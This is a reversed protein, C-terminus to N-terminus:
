RGNRGWIAVAAGFLLVSAISGALTAWAAGIVDWRPLLLFLGGLLVLTSCLRILLVKGTQGSATLMPEFAVGALEMSAAVGLLVLLPYAPLFESGAVIEIASRGALIILAVMFASGILAISTTTRTLSRSADRGQYAHVKALEPYISRSLMDAIRMMAQSLQHALRYLGASAPGAFWGIALVPLNQSVSSLTSGMNTLWTFRIIGPHERVVRRMSRSHLPDIRVPTHRKVMWWYAVATTLESAAWAALFGNVTPMFVVAGLAGAMRTVPMIADATAGHRFQDYLRL